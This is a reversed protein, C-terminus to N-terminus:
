GLWGGQGVLDQVLWVSGALLGAFTLVSWLVSRWVVGLFVPDNLQSVARILPQLM